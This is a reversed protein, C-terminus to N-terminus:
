FDLIDTHPDDRVIEPDGVAEGYCKVERSNDDKIVGSPGDFSIPIRLKSKSMRAKDISIELGAQTDVVLLVIDSDQLISSSGKLEEGTLYDNTNASRRVHSVMYIIIDYTRAIMKFARVMESIEKPDDRTPMFGIHDFGFFEIGYLKKSQEIIKEVKSVTYSEMSVDIYFPYYLMEQKIKVWDDQSFETMPKKYKTELIREVTFYLDNELSVLLVPRKENAHQVLLNILTSSKGVGSRGSICVLSKAPIGGNLHATLRESFVPVRNLKNDKLKELVEDIRFIDKIRFKQAGDLLKQYEEKTGGALLFDNADKVNEFKVNFCKEIGIREALKQAAEQGTEDNDFNIYIKIGDPIKNIWPTPGMAGSSISVVSKFGLQFLSMADIEGEVICLYGDEVAYQFATEHFVWTESGPHRRFTKEAISRYKYDVVESDKFVPIAIENTDTFGIHFHQLITPQLGRTKVLYRLGDKNEGYLYDEYKQYPVSPRSRLGFLSQIDKIDEM